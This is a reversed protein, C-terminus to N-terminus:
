GDQILNEIKTKTFHLLEKHSKMLYTYRLHTRGSQPQRGRRKVVDKSSCLHTEHQKLTGLQLIFLDIHEQKSSELYSLM